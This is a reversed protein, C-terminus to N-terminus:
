VGGEGLGFVNASIRDIRIVFLLGVFSLEFFITWDYFAM